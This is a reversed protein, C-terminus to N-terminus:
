RVFGVPLFASRVLVEYDPVTHTGLGSRDFTVRYTAASTDVADIQGTFLGDHVGRLRATSRFVSNTRTIDISEHPVDKTASDPKSKWILWDACLAKNM